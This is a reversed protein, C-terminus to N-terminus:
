VILDAGTRTQITGKVKSPVTHLYGCHETWPSFDAKSPDKIKNGKNDVNRVSSGGPKHSWYMDADMRIWHFNSNPWIHLSVYHGAEPLSSPLEKGVWSLGDSKSANIVDECTNKVCPRANPPCVGSGRGPQAFSNTVIDNGYDYCNNKYQEAVFCGKDDHSPDYHVQKPDDPGVVPAQCSSSSNSSISPTEDHTCQLDGGKSQYLRNLEEKIHSLALKPVNPLQSFLTFLTADVVPNGRLVTCETQAKSPCLKWGTFGLVRCTPLRTNGNSQRLVRCVEQWELGKLSFVPNPTGSFIMTEVEIESHHQCLDHISALGQSLFALTFALRTAM